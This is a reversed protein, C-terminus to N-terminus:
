AEQRWTPFAEILASLEKELDVLSPLEPHLDPSELDKTLSRILDPYWSEIGDEHVLRIAPLFTATLYTQTDTKWATLGKGVQKLLEGKWRSMEVVLVIADLAVAVTAGIIKISQKTFMKGIQAYFARSFKKDVLDGLRKALFKVANGLGAAEGGVAGLKKLGALAFEGGMRRTFTLAANALVRPLQGSPISVPARLQSAATSGLEDLNRDLEELERGLEDALTKMSQQSQFEVMHSQIFAVCADRDNWTASGSVEEQVKTFIEERGDSVMEPLTQEMRNFTEKIVKKSKIFAEELHHIRVKLIARAEPSLQVADKRIRVMRLADELAILFAADLKRSVERVREPRTASHRVEEWLVRTQPLGDQTRPNGTAEYVLHLQPKRRLSDEAHGLMELIRPDSGQLGPPVRNIVLHLPLDPDGELMAMASEYVQRDAEQFGRAYNAIFVVADSDPLFAQLADDHSAQESNYGPTDFVQIGQNDDGGLSTLMQLRLLGPPPTVAAERFGTLDTEDQSANQYLKLFTDEQDPLFVVQVITGTTPIARVPLIPEGLFSNLLTSKGSSTEGVLTIWAEPLGMRQALLIARVRASEDGALAIADLAKDLWGKM